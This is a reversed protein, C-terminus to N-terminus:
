IVLSSAHGTRHLSIAASRAICARRYTLRITPLSLAAPFSSVQGSRGPGITLQARCPLEIGPGIAPFSSLQGSIRGLPDFHTNRLRDLCGLRDFHTSRPRDLRGLDTSSTRPCRGPADPPAGLSGFDVGLRAWSRCVGSNARVARERVTAPAINRRVPDIKPTTAVGAFGGFYRAQWCFRLNPLDRQVVLQECSTVEFFSSFRTCFRDLTSRLLDNPTRRPAWTSRLQDNPTLRLALTSRLPDIATLGTSNARRAPVRARLKSRDTLSM